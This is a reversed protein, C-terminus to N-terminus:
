RDREVGRRLDSPALGRARLFARTFASRSRFGTARAIREVPQDGHLLLWTAEALRLERLVRMPSQGTMARFRLAFRSRGMGAEAALSELTHPAGPADFMARLAAWLRRDGAVPLWRLAPAGDAGDGRMLGIVGQLLLARILARGGPAPDSLEATLAAALGSLRPDAACDVRLPAQLLATLGGAGRLSGLLLGRGGRSDGDQADGAV